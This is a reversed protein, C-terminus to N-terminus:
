TLLIGVVNWDEPNSKLQNLLQGVTQSSPNFGKYGLDEPLPPTSSCGLLAMSLAVIKLGKM